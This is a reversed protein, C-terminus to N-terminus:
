PRVSRKTRIFFTAVTIIILLIIVAGYNDQVWGNDGLFYGTCALSSVWLLGGLFNYLMYRRYNMQIMGGIIPAFTRVLPLFRGIILIKGGHDDYFQITGDVYKKRFFFVRTNEKLWAPGLKKKGWWYGIYYGMWAGFSMALILVILNTHLIEPKAACLFGAVFIMSNGPLFFGIIFSCEAFIIFSLILVSGWNVIYFPDTLHELLALVSIM